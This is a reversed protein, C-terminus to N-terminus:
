TPRNEPNCRTATEKFHDLADQMQGATLWKWVLMPSVISLEKQKYYSDVRYLAYCRFDSAMTHINDLRDQLAQYFDDDLKKKSENGSIVVDPTTTSKTKGM